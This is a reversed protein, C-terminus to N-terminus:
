SLYKRSEKIRRTEGVQRRAILTHPGFTGRRARPTSIRQAALIVVKPVVKISAELHRVKFLALDAANVDRLVTKDKEKHVLVKVQNIKATVPIALEFPTSDGEIFIWLTRNLAESDSM